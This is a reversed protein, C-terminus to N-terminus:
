HRRWLQWTPRPRPTSALPAARPSRARASSQPLTDEDVGDAPASALDSLTAVDAPTLPTFDAPELGTALALSPPLTTATTAAPAAVAQDAAPAQQPAGMGFAALDLMGTDTDARPPPPPPPPALGFAALDLAGSHIASSQPPPPPPPALGFAALDLACSDTASLQQHAPPQQPLVHAPRASSSVAGRRLADGWDAARRCAAGSDGDDGDGRAARLAARLAGVAADARGAALLARLPASHWRPPPPPPPAPPPPAPTAAAADAVAAGGVCVRGEDQAPLDRPPPPGRTGAAATLRLPPLAVDGAAVDVRAWGILGGGGVACVRVSPPGGDLVVSAALTTSPPPSLGGGVGEGGAALPLAATAAHGWLAGRPGLSPRGDDGGVGPRPVIISDVGDVAWLSVAPPPTHGDAVDAVALWVVDDAGPPWRGDPPPLPAVWAAAVPTRAPSSPLLQPPPSLLLAVCMHVGGAGALAVEVWVRAAGDAALTALARRASADSSAPPSSPPLPAWALSLVPAPHRLPEPSPTPGAPPPLPTPAAAPAPAPKNESGSLKDLLKRTEEGLGDGDDVTTKRRTPDAPAAAADQTPPWWVTATKSAAPATAAPSRADAGAALLAVPADATATWAPTLQDNHLTLCALHSGSAVLLADGHPTLALATPPPAAVAADGAAPTAGRAVVDLVGAGSRGAGDDVPGLVAALHRRASLLTLAGVPSVTAALAAGDADAFAVLAVGGPLIASAPPLRPRTTTHSPSQTNHPHPQSPTFADILCFFPGGEGGVYAGDCGGPGSARGRWVGRM